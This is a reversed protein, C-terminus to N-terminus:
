SVQCTAGIQTFRRQLDRQLQLRGDRVDFILLMPEQPLPQLVDKQHIFILLLLLFFVSIQTVFVTQSKGARSIKNTSIQDTLSKASISNQGILLFYIGKSAFTILMIVAAGLSIPASNCFTLSTM